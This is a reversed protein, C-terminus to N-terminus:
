GPALASASLSRTSGSVSRIRPAWATPRSPTSLRMSTSAVAMAPPSVADSRASRSARRRAQRVPRGLVRDVDARTRRPCGPAGAVGAADLPMLQVTQDAATRRQDVDTRGGLVRAARDLRDYFAHAGPRPVYREVPEPVPRRALDRHPHRDDHVALDTLAPVGRGPQEGLEAVVDAVEVAAIQRPPVGGPGRLMIASTSGTLPAAYGQAAREEPPCAIAPRDTASRRTIFSEKIRFAVDALAQRLHTRRQRARRRTGLEVLEGAEM